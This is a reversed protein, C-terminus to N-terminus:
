QAEDVWNVLYQLSVHPTLRRYLDKWFQSKEAIFQSTAHPHCNLLHTLNNYCNSDKSNCLVLTKVVPSLKKHYLNIMELEQRLGSTIPFGLVENPTEIKLRQILRRIPNQFLKRFEFEADAMKKLFTKGELVPEWLVISILHPSNVAAQLALTGGIRLGILCVNTIDSRKKIEEVADHVDKVWQVLSGEEFDGDSDGCGFYDFRLVHFGVKSLLVALQRIVHHSQLYEQGIPSCLVVAFTKGRSQQPLHHCGYLRRPSVGFYFPVVESKLMSDNLNSDKIGSQGLKTGQTTQAIRPITEVWSIKVINQKKYGAL